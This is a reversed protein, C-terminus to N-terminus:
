LSGEVLHMYPNHVLTVKPEGGARNAAFQGVPSERTAQRVRCWGSAETPTALSADLIQVVEDLLIM